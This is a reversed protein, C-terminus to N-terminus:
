AVSIIKTKNGIDELEVEHEGKSFHNVEASRAKAWDNAYLKAEVDKLPADVIVFDENDPREYAYQLTNVWGEFADAEMKSVAVLRLAAEVKTSGTMKHYIYNTLAYPEKKGSSKKAKDEADKWKHELSKKSGKGQKVDHKIINNPM